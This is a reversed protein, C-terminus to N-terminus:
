ILTIIINDSIVATHFKKLPLAAPGKTVGGEKDFKSGHLNCVFGNGTSVLQNDAHTCRLLLATYSGDEEKRLAINYEYNKPSIIQLSTTAFASVPVTIKNESITTKFVSASTCSSLSGVAIGASIAICLSCSNKIFNRRDM